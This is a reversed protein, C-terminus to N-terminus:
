LCCLLHLRLHAPLWVNEEEEVLSAEGEEEEKRELSSKGIDERETIRGHIRFLAEQAACLMEEREEVDRERERESGDRDRLSSSSIYIVREPFCPLCGFEHPRESASSKRELPAGVSDEKPPRATSSSVSLITLRRSSIPNPM